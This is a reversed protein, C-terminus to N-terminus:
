PFLAGVVQDQRGAAAGWRILRHSDVTNPTRRIRDFAFAIGDGLGADRVRDYVTDIRSADGFKAKLYAGREMGEPPMPPNLQVPRWGVKVGALGRDALAREFRRKGIYCWPCITDSVIDVRM